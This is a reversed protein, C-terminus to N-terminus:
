FFYFTKVFDISNTKPCFIANNQDFNNQGKVFLLLFVTAQTNRNKNIKRLTERLLFM